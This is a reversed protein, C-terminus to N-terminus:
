FLFSLGASAQSGRYNAAPDTSSQRYRQAAARLSLNRLARWEVELQASRQTDHRPAGTFGPPPDRFDSEGRIADLRLTTRATPQWAAGLAVRKEVRQSAGADAWPEPERGLQASFSLKALANWVYRLRAAPASFDRASFNNSRYDIWAARAEVSSKGGFRWLALAETERRRFGDDLLAVPDLPRDVYRGDLARLNLAVWNESRAVWKVGAEGGSARYSGREPVPVTYRDRMGTLGGTVHWGGFLWADAAALFTETTRVNLVGPNRFESYDALAEARAASLAGGIRPGLRWEWAGRYNLADFDLHSFNQYRSATETADLYFRQQAYAKDVSVGAYAVGIREASAQPAHFINSDWTHSAGVRLMLPRDPLVPPPKRAGEEEREEEREEDM